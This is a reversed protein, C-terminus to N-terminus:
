LQIMLDYHLSQNVWYFIFVINRAFYDQSPFLPTRTFGINQNIFLSSMSYMIYVTTLFWSGSTCLIIHVSWLVSPKMLFPPFLAFHKSYDLEYLNFVCVCFWMKYKKWIDCMDKSVFPLSISIVSFFSIFSALFFESLTLLQSLISFYSYYLEM